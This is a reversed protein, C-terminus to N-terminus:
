TVFTGSIGKTILDSLSCAGLYLGKTIGLVYATGLLIVGGCVLAGNRIFKKKNKKM